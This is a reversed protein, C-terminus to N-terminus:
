RLVGRTPCTLRRSMSKSLFGVYALILSPELTALRRFIGLWGPQLPGCLVARAVRMAVQRKLARGGSGVPYYRLFTEFMDLYLNGLTVYEACVGLTFKSGGIFLGRLQSVQEFSVTFGPLQERITRLAITDHNELQTKRHTTTIRQCLRYQVLAEGLNAGYTCKLVRTWLDYDQTTELAEDYKLGKRALVDRRIMVTPHAFPNELLSAWRIQIASTPTKRVGVRRGDSDIHVCNCGLIGVEPHEKLFAVQKEFRVPMSIDDADMRAVYDGKAIALGKNLSRTLGINERNHLLFTRSDNYSELIARSTDTSGDNVIIFEFDKFTQNLISEVSERLYREGNYVSM